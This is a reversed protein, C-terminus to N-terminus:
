ECTSVSSLRPAARRPFDCIRPYARHFVPRRHRIFTFTLQPDRILARRPLFGNGSYCRLLRAAAAFRFPSQHHIFITVGSTDASSVVKEHGTVWARGVCMATPVHLTRAHCKFARARYSDNKRKMSMERRSASKHREDELYFQFIM